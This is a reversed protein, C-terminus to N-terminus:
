PVVPTILEISVPEWKDIDIIGLSMPHVAAHKQGYSEEGSFYWEPEGPFYPDKFRINELAAAVKDPDKFTGADQIAKFVLRPFIDYKTTMENWEVGEAALREKLREGAPTLPWWAWMTNYFKALYEREADFARMLDEAGLAQMGIIVEKFGLERLARIIGPGDGGVVGLVVADPNKALLKTVVPMFDTTGVAYRVEDLWEVGLEELPYRSMTTMELEAFPTDPTVGVATKIQPEYKLIYGYLSAGFDDPMNLVKFNYPHGVKFIERMYSSDVMIVKEEECMPTIAEDIMGPTSLFRVKDRYILKEAGAVGTPIDSKTDSHIMEVKYRKGAVLLGGEANVEEAALEFAVKYPVGWTAAFGSLSSCVGYKITEEPLTPGEEETPLTPGEEETPAPCATVFPLVALVLTLCISSILTLLKRNRM